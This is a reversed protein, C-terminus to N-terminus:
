FAKPLGAQKLIANAIHRLPKCPVTVQHGKGNRWKEHSGKGGPVRIYGADRLKRTLDRYYDQVM